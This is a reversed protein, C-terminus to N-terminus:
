LPMGKEWRFGISKIYLHETFLNFQNLVCAQFPRINCKLQTNKVLLSMWLLGAPREVNDEGSHFRDPFVDCIVDDNLRMGFIGVEGIQVLLYMSFYYVGDGGPPVTFVGTTSDYSCIFLIPLSTTSEMEM